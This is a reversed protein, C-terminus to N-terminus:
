YAEGWVESGHHMQERSKAAGTAGAASFKSIRFLFGLLFILLKTKLWTMLNNLLTGTLSNGRIHNILRHNTRFGGSRRVGGNDWILLHCRTIFTFHACGLCIIVRWRQWTQTYSNAGWVPQLELAVALGKMKPRYTNHCASINGPKLLNGEQESWLHVASSGM